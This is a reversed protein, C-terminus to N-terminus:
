TKKKPRTKFFKGQTNIYGQPGEDRVTAVVKHESKKDYVVGGGAGGQGTHWTQIEQRKRGAKTVPAYGDEFEGARHFQAEIVVTGTYDIYGWLPFKPDDSTNVPALGQCFKGVAAFQPRILWRGGGSPESKFGWLSTKSDARPHFSRDKEETPQQAGSIATVL